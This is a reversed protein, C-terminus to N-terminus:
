QDSYPGATAGIRIVKKEAQITGECAASILSLLLIILLIVVPKKKM